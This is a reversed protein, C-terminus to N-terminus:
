KPEPALPIECFPLPIGHEGLVAKYHTLFSWLANRLENLEQYHRADLQNRGNLCLEDAKYCLTWLTDGQVLVGPFRRGPHRLIAQNTADSYIEVQEVHM